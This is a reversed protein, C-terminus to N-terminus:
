QPQADAIVGLRTRELAILERAPAQWSDDGTPAPTQGTLLARLAPVQEAYAGGLTELDTCARETAERMTKSWPGPQGWRERRRGLMAGECLNYGLWVVPTHVGLAEALLAIKDYNWARGRGMSARFGAARPNTLTRWVDPHVATSAVLDKADTFGGATLAHPLRDTILHALERRTV